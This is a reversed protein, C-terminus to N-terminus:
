GVFLENRNIRRHYGVLFQASTSLSCSKIACIVRSVMIAVKSCCYYSSIAVNQSKQTRSQVGFFYFNRHMSGIFRACTLEECSCLWLTVLISKSDFNSFASDFWQSKDSQATTLEVIEWLWHLWQRSNSCHLNDREGNNAARYTAIPQSERQRTAPAITTVNIYLYMKNIATWKTTQCLMQCNIFICSNSRLEFLMTNVCCVFENERERERKTQREDSNRKEKSTKTQTQWEM